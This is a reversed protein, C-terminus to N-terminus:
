MHVVWEVIGVAVWEDVAMGAAVWVVSDADVGAVVWAVFDAVVM